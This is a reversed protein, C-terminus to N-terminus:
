NKNKLQFGKTLANDREMREEPGGFEWESGLVLFCLLYGISIVSKCLMIDGHVVMAKRSSQTVNTANLQIM